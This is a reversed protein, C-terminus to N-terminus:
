STVAVVSSTPVEAAVVVGPSGVEPAGVEPAGVEPAGVEAPVVAGGELEAPPFLPPVMPGDVRELLVVTGVANGGFVGAPTAAL